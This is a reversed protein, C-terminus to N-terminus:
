QGYALDEKRQTNTCSAESGMQKFHKVTRGKVFHSM